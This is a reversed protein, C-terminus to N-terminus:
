AEVPYLDPRLFHRSVETANEIPLVYTATARGNRVMKYAMSQSCGILKALAYTSGARKYALKIAEEETM